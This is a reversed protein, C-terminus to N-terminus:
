VKQDWGDTGILQKLSKIWLEQTISASAQQSCLFKIFLPLQDM